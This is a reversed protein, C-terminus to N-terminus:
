YYNSGTELNENLDFVLFGAGSYDFSAVGAGVTWAGGLGSLNSDDDFTGNLVLNTQGFGFAFFALALLLFYTKKMIDQDHIHGCLNGVCRRMEDPHIPCHTLWMKKYRVM